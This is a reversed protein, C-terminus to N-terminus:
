SAGGLLRVTKLHDIMAGMPASLWKERRYLLQKWVVVHLGPVNLRTLRGQRVMDETVYDPLFSLGMNQGVLTCIVDAQGTELVPRIELSSRALQEDMLRRYSMGKETLLFPEELLQRIEVRNAKALPHAPSAVFHVGIEEEDAIVYNTDYVHDDMTCLMDVENHDLKDLLATTDTTTVYLSVKPYTQRFRLIPIEDPNQVINRFGVLRKGVGGRLIEGAGHDVIKGVGPQAVARHFLQLGDAIVQGLQPQGEFDPVAEPRYSGLFPEPLNVGIGGINGIGRIAQAGVAPAVGYVQSQYGGVSAGHFHGRAKVIEGFFSVPVIGVAGRIGGLVGLQQFDEHFLVAKHAVLPFPPVKSVLFLVGDLLIERRGPFTLVLKM